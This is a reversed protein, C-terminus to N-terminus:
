HKAPSNKQWNLLDNILQRTRIEAGKDDLHMNTNYFYEYPIFYDRYDSIVDCDLRKALDKQFEEYKEAPPTYEGKGIPYGAVLLTAGRARAFRNFENLRNICTDNIAPVKTNRWTIAQRGSEPKQAIDGYKNFNHRSYVENDYKMISLAYMLAKTWYIPFARFMGYYDEPRIIPWLDKHYEVTIWALAPDPINNNDSFESHCVIVIDGSRINFKAIDEHFANGLGGHLGLNVVPMSLAEEIMDSRIGFTLNSSSVLIIKPENISKLRNVKDIISACYGDEYQCGIIFIGSLLMAALASFVLVILLVVKMIFRHFDKNM